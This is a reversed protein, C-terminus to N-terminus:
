IYLVYIYTIHCCYFFIVLHVKNRVLEDCDLLSVPRRRQQQQKQKMKESVSGGGMSSSGNGYGTLSSSGATKTYSLPSLIVDSKQVFGLDPLAYNPYIVYVPAAQSDGMKSNHSLQALFSPPVVKIRSNASHETKSLIMSTQISRSMLDLPIQAKAFVQTLNESTDDTLSSNTEKLSDKEISNNNNLNALHKPQGLSKINLSGGDPKHRHAPSDFVERYLDNSRNPKTPQNTSAVDLSDYQFDGSEMDEDHRSLASGKGSDNMSKKRQRQQELSSSPSDSPWCGSSVDMCTDTSSSKQKIFLKVLNFAPQNGTPAGGSSTSQQLLLPAPSQSGSSASSTPMALPFMPMLSRM